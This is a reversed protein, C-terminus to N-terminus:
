ASELAANVAAIDLAPRETAEDRGASYEGIPMTDAANSAGGLERIRKVVQGATGRKCGLSKAAREIAAKTTKREIAVSEFEKASEGIVDAIARVAVAGDLRENGERVYRGFMRGNGLAIPGQEDVYTELRKRADKVLQEVRIIQEYAQAARQPTLTTDGIVALGHEAVQVLLATKSPCYPKSQCHKCWPGERTEMIAGDRKAAQLTAVRSHLRELQSAYDALELADIDYSDVRRSQTYVVIVRAESKGLARAAALAYFWLQSNESAPEVDAFGTKWDLVVVRDREVGLVDCSGVIEFPGPNGYDRGGGEGIIRGQRTAVDYALKVEARAGQPILHAFPHEENFVALEEHADHGADAWINHNEARPLVASSPCNRLRALASATIV